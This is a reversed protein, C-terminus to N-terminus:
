YQSNRSYEKHMFTAYRYSINYTNKFTLKYITKDSSNLEILFYQYNESDQFTTPPPTCGVLHHSSHLLNLFSSAKDHSRSSTLRIADTRLFGFDPRKVKSSSPSNVWAIEWTASTTLGVQPGGLLHPLQVTQPICTVPGSKVQPRVQGSTSTKDELIAGKTSNWM